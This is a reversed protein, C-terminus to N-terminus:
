AFTQSNRILQEGNRSLQERGRSAQKCGLKGLHTVRGAALGEPSTPWRQQYPYDLVPSGTSRCIVSCLRESSRAAACFRARRPGRCAAASLRLRRTSPLHTGPPNGFWLSLCPLPEALQLHGTFPLMIYGGKLMEVRLKTRAADAVAGGESGKRGAVWQVRKLYEQPTRPPVTPDFDEALDCDDVPLLRPMLEELGPDMGASGGRERGGEPARDAQRPPAPPTTRTPRRRAPAGPGGAPQGRSLAATSGAAPATVAAAPSPQPCQQGVTLPVARGPGAREPRTGCLACQPVQATIFAGGGGEGKGETGKGKGETRASWHRHAPAAKQHPLPVTFTSPAASHPLVSCSAAAQGSPNPQGLFTPLLIFFGKDLSCYLFPNYRNLHRNPPPNACVRITTKAPGQTM